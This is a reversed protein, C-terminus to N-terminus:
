SVAVFLTFLIFLILIERASYNPLHRSYVSTLAFGCASAILLWEKLIFDLLANHTRVM